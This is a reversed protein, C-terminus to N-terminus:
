EMVVLAVAYDGSHSLSLHIRAAGVRDAARAAEGHLGITPAHGPERLVEIESLHDRNELSLAMSAAQKAAYRGALHPAPNRRGLCYRRESDTFVTSEAPPTGDLRSLYIGVHM